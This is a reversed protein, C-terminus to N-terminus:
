WATRKRHVPNTLAANSHKTVRSIEQDTCRRTLGIPPRDALRLDGPPWRTSSGPRNASTPM